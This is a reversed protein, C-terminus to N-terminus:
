YTMLIADGSTSKTPVEMPYRCLIDWFARAHVLDVAGMDTCRESETSGHCALSLHEDWTM